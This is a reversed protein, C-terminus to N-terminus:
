SKRRKTQKLASVEHIINELLQGIQTVTDELKETRNSVSSLSENLLNIDKSHDKKPFSFTKKFSEKEKFDSIEYFKTLIASSTRDLVQSLQQLSKTRNSDIKTEKLDVLSRAFELTEEDKNAQWSRKKEDWHFGLENMTQRVAVDPKKSFKVEVTLDDEFVEAITLDTVKTSIENLDSAYQMILEVECDLWSRKKNKLWQEDLQQIEKHYTKFLQHYKKLDISSVEHKQSISKLGADLAIGRVKPKKALKKVDVLANPFSM